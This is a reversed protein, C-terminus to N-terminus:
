INHISKFQNSMVHKRFIHISENDRILSEHQIPDRDRIIDKRALNSYLDFIIYGKPKLIELLVKFDLTPNKM